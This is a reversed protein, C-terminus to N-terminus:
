RRRKIGSGILNMLIKYLSSACFEAVYKDILELLEPIFCIITLESDAIVGKKEKDGYYNPYDTKQGLPVIRAGKSVIRMKYNLADSEGILWSDKIENEAKQKLFRDLKPKAETVRLTAGPESHQFHILPTSAQLTYSRSFEFGAYEHSNNM